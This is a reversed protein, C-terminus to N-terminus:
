NVTVNGVPLVSHMEKTKEDFLVLVYEYAMGKVVPHRDVLWLGAGSTETGLFAIWPDHILTDAARKEYAIEEMLPTVQIWDRPSSVPFRASTIQRRYLMCPFLTRYFAKGEWQYVEPNDSVKIRNTEGGICVQRVGEHPDLSAPVRTYIGGTGTPFVAQDLTTNPVGQLTGIAVVPGFRPDPQGNQQHVIEVHFGAYNALVPPLGRAPWPLTGNAVPPQQSVATQDSWVFDKMESVRGQVRAPHQADPSRFPGRGVCRVAALYTVGPQVPVLAQFANRPFGAMAAVRITQYVGMPPWNGNADLISPDYPGSLEASLDDGASNPPLDGPKILLVEFREYGHPPCEWQVKMAPSGNSLTARDLKTLTPTPLSDVSPQETVCDGWPTIPGVKGFGMDVQSYYCVLGGHAPPQSDTWTAPLDGTGQDILRKPGGDLSRYMRWRKTGPPADVTGSIQFGPVPAPDAIIPGMGPLWLADQVQVSFNWQAAKRKNKQNPDTGKVEPVLAVHEVWGTEKGNTMRVRCRLKGQPAAPLARDLVAVDTGSIMGSRFNVRGLLTGEPWEFEAWAAKGPAASVVSFRTWFLWNPVDEANSSGADVLTPVWRKTTLTVVAAETPTSLDLLNGVAPGSDGSMNRGCAGSDFARVTYVFSKGADEPTKPGQMD